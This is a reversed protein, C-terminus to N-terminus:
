YVVVVCQERSYVELAVRERRDTPTLSRDERTVQKREREADNPSKRSKRASLKCRNRVGEQVSTHCNEEPRMVLGLGVISM